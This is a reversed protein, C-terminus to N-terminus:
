LSAIIGILESDEALPEGALSGVMQDISFGAAELEATISEPSFHQFWNFIGWSTEPEVILYRDLSLHEERYLFTRKIGVYDHEAWFGNMLNNEMLTEERKAAFSALGAVDLIISGGSNLMSRMRKLLVSRQASSLVCFDTFILTIVDFGVPLEDTLYNAKLYQIKAQSKEAERMAHTLSVASFDVGVVEDAFAAFRQTYLGPGCGLDCVTRNALCIQSDIWAVIQDISDRRYSARDGDPDLHAALMQAALHPRTWLEPATYHSFPDPRDCVDRLLNYM